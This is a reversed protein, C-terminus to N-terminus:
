SCISLRVSPLFRLKCINSLQSVLFLRVLSVPPVDLVKYVATLLINRTMTSHARM